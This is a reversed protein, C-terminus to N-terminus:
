ISDIGTSHYFYSKCLYLRAIAEYNNEKIVTALQHEMIKKAVEKKKAENFYYCLAETADVSENKSLGELRHLLENVGPLVWTSDGPNRFTRVLLILEATTQQNPATKLFQEKITEHNEYYKEILEKHQQAILEYSPYQASVPQLVLFLIVIGTIQLIASVSFRNSVM